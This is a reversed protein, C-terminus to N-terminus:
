RTDGSIVYVFDDGGRATGRGGTKDAFATEYLGNQGPSLCFVDHSWGGSRKGEFTGEQADQATSLFASNVVYRHGWPDWGIPSSLYAGRWGLNFQPGPLSYGTPNTEGPTRYRPGNTILQHDLADGRMKEKDWNLTEYVHDSYFTEVASGDLMADTIKPGETYLIDVRNQKSCRDKGVFKLCAGVDRTLRMVSIGIAECDEKVKVTKADNVFDGISPSLVGTLLMLVLLIITAEVLSMGHENRLTSM